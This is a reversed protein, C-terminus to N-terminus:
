THLSEKSSCALNFQSCVLILLRIHLLIEVIRKTLRSSKRFFMAASSPRFHPSFHFGGRHITGSMWGSVHSERNGRIHPGMRTAPHYPRWTTPNAPQSAVDNPLLRHGLSLRAILMQPQWYQWYCRQCYRSITRSCRFLARVHDPSIQLPLVPLTLPM